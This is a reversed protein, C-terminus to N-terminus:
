FYGQEKWDQNKVSEMFKLAQDDITEYTLDNSLFIDKM